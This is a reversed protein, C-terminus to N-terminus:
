RSSKTSSSVEVMKIKLQELLYCLPIDFGQSQGTKVMAIFTKFIIDSWNVNLKSAITEMSLFEQSTIKDFYGAKTLFPKSM